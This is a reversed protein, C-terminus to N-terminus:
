GEISLLKDLPEGARYRAVFDAADWERGSPNRRFAESNILAIEEAADACNAFSLEVINSDPDRYYFSTGPGHNATRHPTVGREALREYQQAMAEISPLRLQFHHMGPGNVPETPTGDVGFIALLQGYPYEGQHVKFFALRVDAAREQGDVPKREADPERELFPDRDLLLRYWERQIEFRGTRLVLEYMQLTVASTPATGAEPAPQVTTM